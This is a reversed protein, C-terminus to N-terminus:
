DWVGNEGIWKKGSRPTCSFHRQGAGAMDEVLPPDRFVLCSPFSGGGVRSCEGGAGQSVPQPSPCLSPGLTRLM